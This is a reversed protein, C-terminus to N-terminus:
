CHFYSKDIRSWKLKYNIKELSYLENRSSREDYKEKRMKWHWKGMQVEDKRFIMGKLFRKMLDGFIESNMEEIRSSDKLRM